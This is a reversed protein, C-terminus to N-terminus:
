VAPCRMGGRRWSTTRACCSRSSARGRDRKRARRLAADHRALRAEALRVRGRVLTPRLADILASKRVGSAGAILVACARGDAARAVAQRVREVERERGYMRAGLRPHGPADAAGLTFSTDICRRTSLQECLAALDAHLAAASPYRDELEKSLLKAIWRSVADPVDRRLEWVPVTARAPHARILELSDSHEFPPRGALAAYLTAGIAYLDSRADCGRNM